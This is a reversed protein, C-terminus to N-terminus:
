GVAGLPDYDDGIWRSAGQCTDPTGSLRISVDATNGLDLWSSV